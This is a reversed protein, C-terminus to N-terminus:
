IADVPTIIITEAELNPAKLSYHYEDNKWTMEDV